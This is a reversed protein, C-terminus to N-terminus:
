KNIYEEEMEYYLDNKENLEKWKTINPSSCELLFTHFDVYLFKNESQKKKKLEVILNILCKHKLIDGLNGVNKTQINQIKENIKKM